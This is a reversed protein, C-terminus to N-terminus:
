FSAAQAPACDAQGVGNVRWHVVNPNVSVDIEMDIAYRTDLQVVPGVSESATGFHVRITHDSSNYRLIAPSLGSVNCTMIDTTSSPLAGGTFGIAFSMVGKTPSADWNRELYNGLGIEAFQYCKPGGPSWWPPSSIVTPAVGTGGNSDWHRRGGLLTNPAIVGCGAGCCFVLTAM